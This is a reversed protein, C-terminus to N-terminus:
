TLVGGRGGVLRARCGCGRVEIAAAKGGPMVEWAVMAEEMGVRRAVAECSGRNDGSVMLVTLGRM